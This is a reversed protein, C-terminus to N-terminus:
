KDKSEIVTKGGVTLTGGKGLYQNDLLNSVEMVGMARIADAEQKNTCTRLLRDYRDFIQLLDVECGMERALIILRRRYSQETAAEVIKGPEIEVKHTKMEKM